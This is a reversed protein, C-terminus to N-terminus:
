YKIANTSDSHISVVGMYVIKVLGIKRRFFCKCHSVNSPNALSLVFFRLFLFNPSHM